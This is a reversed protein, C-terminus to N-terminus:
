IAKLKKRLLKQKYGRVVLVIATWHLFNSDMFLLFRRNFFFIVNEQIGSTDTMQEFM